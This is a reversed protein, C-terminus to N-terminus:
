KTTYSDEVREFYDVEYDLPETVWEGPYNDEIELGFTEGLPNPHLSELLSDLPVYGKEVPLPSRAREKVLQAFQPSALFDQSSITPSCIYYDDNPHDLCFGPHGSYMACLFDHSNLPEPSYVEVFSIYSKYLHDHLGKPNTLLFAEGQEKYWMYLLAYTPQSTPDSLTAMFVKLKIRSLFETILQNIQEPLLTKKSSM